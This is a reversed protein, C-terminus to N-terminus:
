IPSNIPLCSNKSPCPEKKVSPEHDRGVRKSVGGRKLGFTRPLALEDKSKKNQFFLTPTLKFRAVAHVQLM